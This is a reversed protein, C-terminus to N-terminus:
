YYANVWIQLYTLISILHLVFCVTVIHRGRHGRVILCYQKSNGKSHVSDHGLQPDAPLSNWFGCVPDPPLFARPVSLTSHVHYLAHRTVFLPFTKTAVSGFWDRVITDPWIIVSACPVCNQVPNTTPCAALPCSYHVIGATWHCELIKYKCFWDQTALLNKM